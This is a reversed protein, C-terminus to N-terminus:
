VSKVKDRISNKVIICCADYSILDIVAIKIHLEGM